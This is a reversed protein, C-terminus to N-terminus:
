AMKHEKYTGYVVSYVGPRQLNQFVTYACVGHCVDPIESNGAVVPGFLDEPGVLENYIVISM